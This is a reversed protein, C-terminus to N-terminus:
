GAFAQERDFLSSNQYTGWMTPPHLSQVALAFFGAVALVPDTHVRWTV